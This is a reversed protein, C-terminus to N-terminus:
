WTPGARSAGNYGKARALATPLSSLFWVVLRSATTPGAAASHNRTPTRLRSRSNLRTGPRMYPVLLSLESRVTANDACTKPALNKKRSASSPSHISRLAHQRCPSVASLTSLALVTAHVITVRTIWNDTAFLSREALPSV